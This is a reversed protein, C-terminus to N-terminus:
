GASCLYGPKGDPTDDASVTLMRSGHPQVQCRRCGTYEFWSIRTRLSSTLQLAGKRMRGAHHTCDDRARITLPLLTSSGTCIQSLNRHMLPRGSVLGLQCDAVILCWKAGPRRVGLVASHARLLRM